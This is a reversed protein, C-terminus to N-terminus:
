DVHEERHIVLDDEAAEIGIRIQNRRIDKVLIEAVVDEPTVDHRDDVEDAPILCISEGVKRTLVLM